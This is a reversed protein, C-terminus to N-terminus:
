QWIAMIEKYNVLWELMAILYVIPLIEHACLYLSVRFFGIKRIPLLHMTKIVLVIRWLFFFLLLIYIPWGLDSTYLYIVVGLSFVSLWMWELLTYYGRWVLNIENNSFLYGWFRYFLRWVSLYVFFLVFLFALFYLSERLNLSALVGREDFILFYCIAFLLANQIRALFVFLRRDIYRPLRSLFLHEQNYFVANALRIFFRPIRAAVIGFLSFQLLLISILVDYIIQGTWFPLGTM